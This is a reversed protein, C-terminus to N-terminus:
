LKRTSIETRLRTEFLEPWYVLKNMRTLLKPHQTNNIKFMEDTISHTQPDKTTIQKTNNVTSLTYQTTLVEVIVQKNDYKHVVCVVCCSCYLGCNV